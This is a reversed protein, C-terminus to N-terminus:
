LPTTFLVGSDDRSKFCQSGIFNKAKDYVIDGHSRMHHYNYLPAYPTIRRDFKSGGNGLLVLKGNKDEVAVPTDLKPLM